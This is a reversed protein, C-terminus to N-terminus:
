DFNGGIDSVRFFPSRRMSCDSLRMTRQVPKRAHTSVEGPPTGRQMKLAMMM